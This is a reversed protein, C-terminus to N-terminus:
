EAVIRIKGVEVEDTVDEVGELHSPATPVFTVTAKSEDWGGEARLYAVLDTIDYFATLGGGHCGAGFTALIGVYHPVEGATEATADPYNLYVDYNGANGKATVDELYLTVISADHSPDSVSELADTAGGGLTVEAHVPASGVRVPGDAAGVEAESKPAAVSDLGAGVASTLTAVSPPVPPPLTPMSSFGYDYPFKSPDLAGPDVMDGPYIRVVDTNDSTAWFNWRDALRPDSSATMWSPDNTPNARGGGAVLWGEWLRDIQSHHLWFIPDFSATVTDQMWGTKSVFGDGSGTDNHVAGHPRGDLTSNFRGFDLWRYAQYYFPTTAGLYMPKGQWTPQLGRRVKEMFLPNPSGDPMKQQTFVWPLCSRPWRPTGSSFQSYNWFPLAWDEPGGAATVYDRVIREFFYIYVRHWPLFFNEFGEPNPVDEHTCHSWWDQHVPPLSSGYKPWWHMAAQWFYSTPDESYPWTKEVDAQGQGGAQWGMAKLANAYALSIADWGPPNQVPYEAVKGNNLDTIDYRTLKLRASM